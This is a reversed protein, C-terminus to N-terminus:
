LINERGFLIIIVFLMAAIGLLTKDLFTFPIIKAYTRKESSGFSRGEMSLVLHDVKKITSILLVKIFQYINKFFRGPPLFQYSVGRTIQAYFITKAENSFIPILRLSTIFSFGYRYPLGIQMLSYVLANPETTIVFLYGLLVFTFFRSALLAGNELGTQTIQFIGLSYVPYGQQNFVIQLLGIFVSTTLIFKFGQLRYFKIKTLLFAMLLLVLVILECRYNTLWLVFFSLFILWVLKVVPNIRNFISSAEKYRIPITAAMM